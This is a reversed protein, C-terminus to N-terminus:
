TVTKSLKKRPPRRWYARGVAKGLLWVALAFSFGSTAAWSTLFVSVIIAWADPVLPGGLDLYLWGALVFGVLPGVVFMGTLLFAIAPSVVITPATLDLPRPPPPKRPGRIAAILQVAQPLDGARTQLVQERGLHEVRHPIGTRGLIAACESIRYGDSGTAAIVWSEPTVGAVLPGAPPTDNANAVAKLVAQIKGLPKAPQGALPISDSADIVVSPRSGDATIAPGPSKLPADANWEGDGYLSLLFRYLRVRARQLWGPSSACGVVEEAAALRAQWEAILDTRTPM